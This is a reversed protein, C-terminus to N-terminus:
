PVVLAPVGHFAAEHLKHRGLVGGKRYAVHYTFHTTGRGPPSGSSTLVAIATEKNSRYSRVVSAGARWASIPVLDSLKVLRAGQGCVHLVYKRDLFSTLDAPTQVGAALRLRRNFILGLDAIWLDDFNWGHFYRASTRSHLLAAAWTPIRQAFASDHHFLWRLADTDDRVWDAQVIEAFRAKKTQAKVEIWTRQGQADTLEIDGLGSSPQCVASSANVGLGGALTTLWASITRPHIGCWGISWERQLLGIARRERVRDGVMLAAFLEEVGSASSTAFGSGPQRTSM